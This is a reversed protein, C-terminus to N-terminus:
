APVEGLLSRAVALPIDPIGAFEYGAEATLWEALDRAVAPTFLAAFDGPVGGLGNQVGIRYRESSTGGWYRDQPSAMDDEVAQAHENLLAAARRLTEGASESM